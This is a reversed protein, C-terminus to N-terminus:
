MVVIYGEDLAVKGCAAAEAAIIHLGAIDDGVDAGGRARREEGRLDDGVVHGAVVDRALRKFARLKRVALVVGHLLARAHDHRPSRHRSEPM